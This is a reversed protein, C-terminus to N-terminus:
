SSINSKSKPPQLFLSCVNPHLIHGGKQNPKVTTMVTKFVSNGDLRGYM